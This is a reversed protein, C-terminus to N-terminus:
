APANNGVRFMDNVIYFGGELTPKLQFTQSFDIACQEGNLQVLEIRGRVLVLVGGSLDAAQGDVTAIIHQCQQIPLNTLHASINDRGRFKQGDSTRVSDEGYREGLGGRDADYASYYDGTFGIAVASATADPDM